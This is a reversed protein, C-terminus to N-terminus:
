NTYVETCSPISETFAPFDYETLPSSLYYIHDLWSAPVTFVQAVCPDSVITFDFQSVTRGDPATGLVTVTFPSTYGSGTSRATLRIINASPDVSILMKTTDINQDKHNITYEILQSQDETCTTPTAITVPNFPM